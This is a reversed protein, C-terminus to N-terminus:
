CRRQAGSQRAGGGHRVRHGSAQGGATLPPAGVASLAASSGCSSTLVSLTELEAGNLEKQTPIVGRQGRADDKYKKSVTAPDRLANRHKGSVKLVDLRVAGQLQM